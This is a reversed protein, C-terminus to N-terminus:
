RSDHAAIRRIARELSDRSDQFNICDWAGMENINSGVRKVLIFPQDAFSGTVHLTHPIQLVVDADCSDVIEFEHNLTVLSGFASAFLTPGNVAVKIPSKCV